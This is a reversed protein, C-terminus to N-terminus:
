KLSKDGDNFRVSIHSGDCFPKNNSQGCRCLTARNRIEYVSGDSSQIQIGGKVWIPGSAKSQPDEVLSISPPYTNEIPKGTKKDWVVLRGSPCNCASEVATKNSKEDKKQVVEWTGGGRHCFRGAACFSQADTLRLRPGEISESQELYKKKSATEKGEFGKTHSTDCFPKGNSKGCRCLAYQERSPYKEGDKWTEPEGEGGIEIIEKKLAVNGSVVYPGNKTIEIKLKVAMKEM